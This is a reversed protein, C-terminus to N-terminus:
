LYCFTAADFLNDCYNSVTGVDGEVRFHTPVEHKSKQMSHENAMTKKLNIPVFAVLEKLNIEGQVNAGGHCCVFYLKTVQSTGGM